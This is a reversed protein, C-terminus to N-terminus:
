NNKASAYTQIVTISPVNEFIFNPEHFTGGQMTTNDRLLVCGEWTEVDCFYEGSWQSNHSLVIQTKIKGGGSIVLKGPGDFSDAANIAVGVDEIGTVDVIVVQGGQEHLYPTLDVAPVPYPTPKTRPTAAPSAQPTPEVTPTAVPTPEVTPTATPPPPQPQPRKKDCPGIALAILILLIVLRLM